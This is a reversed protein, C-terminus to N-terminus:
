YKLKKFGSILKKSKLAYIQCGKFADNVSFARIDSYLINHTICNKNPDFYILIHNNEGVIGIFLIPQQQPKKPNNIMWCVDGYDFQKYMKERDVLKSNSKLYDIMVDYTDPNDINFIYSFLLDNIEPQDDLDLLGEKLYTILTKM